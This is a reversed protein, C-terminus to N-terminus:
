KPQIYEGTEKYHNFRYVFDFTPEGNNLSFTIEKENELPPCNIIFTMGTSEAEEKFVGLWDYLSKTRLEQEEISPIEKGVFHVTLM